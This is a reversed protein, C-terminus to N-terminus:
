RSEGSELQARILPLLANATALHGDGKFHKFDPQGYLLGWSSDPVASELNAFAVGEHVATAELWQKFTAYESDVYPAEAGLNLPVVYLLVRINHRKAFRMAAVLADQNLQYAAALIPRKTSTKIGFVWNRFLYVRTQVFTRLDARIAVLPVARSLATVLAAEVRQDLRVVDQTKSYDLSRMMQRALLPFEEQLSDASARWASALPAQAGMATLMSNRVETNRMKDFCVGFVFLRPTSAPSQTLAHLQLLLEEHNLNPAAIGFVRTGAASLSDDLIESITRDGPQQENIAYMQSMGDLVVLRHQRADPIFKWFKQQEAGVSWDYRPVENASAQSHDAQMLNARRQEDFYSKLPLLAVNLVVFCVLAAIVTTRSLTRSSRQALPKRLSRPTNLTDPSFYGARRQM